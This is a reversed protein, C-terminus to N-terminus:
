SDTGQIGTGGKEQVRQHFFGPKLTTNGSSIHTKSQLRNSNTSVRKTDGSVGSNIKSYGSGLPNLKKEANELDKRIESFGSGDDKGTHFNSKM